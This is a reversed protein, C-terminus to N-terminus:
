TKFCMRLFSHSADVLYGYWFTRAPSLIKNKVEVLLLLLNSLDLYFCRYLLICQVM